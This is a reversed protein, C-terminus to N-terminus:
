TLSSLTREDEVMKRLREMCKYKQNKATEPNKYGMLDAIEEMKKQRYYFLDLLRHCPEGLLDFCHSVLDLDREQEKEADATTQQVQEMLFYEAYVKQKRAQSRNSQWILKKAVGFLYTKLASQLQLLKGQQVNDYLIIVSAQFYEIADEDDCQAYRRVWKVFDSQYAAYVLSVATPDGQRINEIVTQDDM